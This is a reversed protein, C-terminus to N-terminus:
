GVEPQLHRNWSRELLRAARKVIDEVTFPLEIFEGLGAAHHALDSPGVFIVKIGPRKHRAMAGLSIGNPCGRGFFLGTVLLDIETSDDLADLAAMSDSLYIVEYGAQTLAAAIKVGLREELVVAVRPLCRMAERNLWHAGHHHARAM